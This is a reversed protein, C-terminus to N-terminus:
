CGKQRRQRFKEITHSLLYGMDSLSHEQRLLALAIRWHERSPKRLATWVADFLLQKIHPTFDVPQSFHERTYSELKKTFLYDDLTKAPNNDYLATTASDRSASPRRYCSMAEPLQYLPGRSALLLGLCRDSIMPHLTLLSEYREPHPAFFNRHVTSSIHGPLVIGQFDDLTFEQKESIWDMKEGLPTGVDDVLTVRHTCGSFQPHAELFDVQKQLKLPDCWYDDCELYAIYEGRAHTLLDYLNRSAGINRSRVFPIVQDPHKQACTLLLETTGDDSADDGVLIEFSFGTRQELVSNIASGIYPAHNYALMIVSLKVSRSSRIM